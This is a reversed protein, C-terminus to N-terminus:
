FTKKDGLINEHILNSCFYTLYYVFITIHKLYKIIRDSYFVIKQKLNVKINKNLQM